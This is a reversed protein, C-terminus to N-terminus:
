TLGAAAARPAREGSGREEGPARGVRGCARPRRHERPNQFPQRGERGMRLVAAAAM